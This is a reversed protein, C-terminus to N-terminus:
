LIIWGDDNSFFLNIVPEGFVHITAIGQRVPKEKAVRDLYTLIEPVNNYDRLDGWITAVYSSVCSVDPNISLHHSLSGESGCPVDCADWVDRPDGFDCTNGLYPIQDPTDEFRIDDFRIVAAVHTWTSM